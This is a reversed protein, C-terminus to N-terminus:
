AWKARTGNCGDHIYIHGISGPLKRVKGLGLIQVNLGLAGGSIHWNLRTARLGVRLHVNVMNAMTYLVHGGCAM